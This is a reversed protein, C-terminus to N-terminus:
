FLSTWKFMKQSLKMSMIKTQTVAELATCVSACVAVLSFSYVYVCVDDVEPDMVVLNCSIVFYSIYMKFKYYSRFLQNSDKVSQM